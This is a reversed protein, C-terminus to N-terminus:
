KLHDKLYDYLYTIRKSEKLEQPYIFYMKIKPGKIQPLVEILSTNEIDPHKKDFTAIGVGSKALHYRSLASNAEVYPKRIRGKEFDISLHWNMNAFPHTKHSGYGILRHKDLDQTKNLTGFEKLYDSSAFLGLEAEMLFDQELTEYGRIYPHILVDMESYDFTPTRDNGILVTHIKPYKKLFGHILPSIYSSSFGSPAHIKLVGQPEKLEDKILSEAKEALQKIEKATEFLIKGQKTLRLGRVHRIFLKSGLKQEISMIQRSLASQSLNMHEAARSSTASKRM